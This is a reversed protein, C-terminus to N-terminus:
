HHHGQDKLNQINAPLQGTDTVSGETGGHGSHPVALSGATSAAMGATTVAAVLIAAAFMTGVVALASRQKARALDPSRRLATNRQWGVVAIVSLELVLLSALTVDFSRGVEPLRWLGVLLALLHLVAAISVTLQLTRAAPLRGQRFSVFGYGLAALGYAASALGAAGSGVLIGTSANMSSATGGLGPILSSAAASALAAIGLMAISVCLPALDSTGQRSAAAAELRARGRGATAPVSPQQVTAM